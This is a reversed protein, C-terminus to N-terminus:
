SLARRIEQGVRDLTCELVRISQAVAITAEIQAYKLRNDINQQPASGDSMSKAVDLWEIAEELHKNRIM